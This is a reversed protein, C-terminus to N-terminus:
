SEPRRGWVSILPPASVDVAGARAAGVHTDLEEDSAARLAVLANRAHEISAVELAAAAASALPFYGDAGVDVLGARRLLRPVKRGLELDVGRQGLVALLGARIRNSLYQEPTRRTPRPM